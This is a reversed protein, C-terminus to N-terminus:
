KAEEFGEGEIDEPVYYFCKAMNDEGAVACIEGDPDAIRSILVYDLTCGYCPKGDKTRWTRLKRKSRHKCNEMDCIVTSM